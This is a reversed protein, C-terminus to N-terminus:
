YHMVICPRSSMSPPVIPSFEWVVMFEAIVLLVSMKLNGQIAEEPRKSATLIAGYNIAVALCLTSYDRWATLASPILYQTM